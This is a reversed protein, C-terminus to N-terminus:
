RTLRKRLALLLLMVALGGGLLWLSAPEPLSIPSSERKLEARKYNDRQNGGGNLRAHASSTSLVVMSIGIMAALATRRFSRM